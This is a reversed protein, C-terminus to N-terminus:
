YKPLRENSIFFSNTSDSIRMKHFVNFGVASDMRIKCLVGFHQHTPLYVEYLNTNRDTFYGVNATIVM